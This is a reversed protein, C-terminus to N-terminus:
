LDSTGTTLDSRRSPTTVSGSLLADWISDRKMLLLFIAGVAVGGLIRQYAATIGDISEAALKAVTFAKRSLVAGLAQCFSALLGFLLGRILERRVLPPHKGPALALAVGALIVLGSVMEALTLETR